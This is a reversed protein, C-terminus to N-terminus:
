DGRPAHAWRTYKGFRFREARTASRWTTRLIVFDKPRWSHELISEPRNIYTALEEILAKSEDPALEVICDAHRLCVFLIKEKSLPHDIVVSRTYRRGGPALGPVAENKTHDPSGHRIHLDKIRARLSEPLRDYAARSDAFLTEGGAEPPPVELAHISLARLPTEQMSGDSHFGMAGAPNHSYEEVNSVYANGQDWSEDDVRGFLRAVRLHDDTGLDQDRFLLLSHKLWAARLRRVVADSLDERLDVGKVEAGFPGNLPVVEFDLTNM